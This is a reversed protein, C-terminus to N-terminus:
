ESVKKATAPDGGGPAKKPTDSTDQDAAKKEPATADELDLFGLDAGVTASKEVMRDNSAPM